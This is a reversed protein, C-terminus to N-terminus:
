PISPHSDQLHNDGQRGRTVEITDGTNVDNEFASWTENGHGDHWHFPLSGRIKNCATELADILPTM